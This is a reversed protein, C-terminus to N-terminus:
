SYLVHSPWCGDGFETSGGNIPLSELEALSKEMDRRRASYATQISALAVILAGIATLIIAIGAATSPPILSACGAIIAAATECLATYIQDNMVEISHLNELLIDAVRSIKGSLESAAKDQTDTHSTYASAGTGQWYSPNRGDLKGVTTHVKSLADAFNTKLEHITSSLCGLSLLLSFAQEAEDIASQCAQRADQSAQKLSNALGGLGLTDLASLAREVTKFLTDTASSISEVAQQHTDGQSIFDGM